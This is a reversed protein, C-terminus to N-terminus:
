ESSLVGGLDADVREPSDGNMLRRTAEQMAPDSLGQDAGLEHMMRGVERSDGGELVNLMQNSDMSDFNYSGRAVAVRGILRTMNTSACYPCVHGGANAADYDAYTKYFMASRRGCTNCRFDYAPM